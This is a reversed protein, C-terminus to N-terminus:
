PEDEKMARLAALADAERAALTAPRIDWAEIEALRAEAREARGRWLAIAEVPYAELIAVMSASLDRAQSLEGALRGITADALIVEARAESLAVQLADIEAKAAAHQDAFYDRGKAIDDSAKDTVRFRERWEDREREAAHCDELYRIADARAVDREATATEWARRLQTVAAPLPLGLWPALSGLAQIAMSVDAEAAEARAHEAEYATRFVLPIIEQPEDRERAYLFAFEEADGQGRCLASFIPSSFPAAISQVLRAVTDAEGGASPPPAPPSAVDPVSVWVYGPCAPRTAHRTPGLDPSFGWRRGDGPSDTPARLLPRVLEGPDIQYDAGSEQSCGVCALHIGDMVIEDVRVAVDGSTVWQGVALSGVAVIVPGAFRPDLHFGAPISM